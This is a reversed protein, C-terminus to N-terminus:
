GRLPTLPYGVARATSPETRVSIAVDAVRRGPRDQLDSRRRPAFPLVAGTREGRRRGQVRLRGQRVASAGAGALHRLHAARGPTRPRAEEDSGFVEGGDDPDLRALPRRDLRAGRARAAQAPSRVSEPLQSLDEIPRDPLSELQDAFVALVLTREDAFWVHLTFDIKPIRFAYVKKKGAGAARTAKLGQRMQEEDYPSATRLILYFPPVVADDVTAAFVLHDLDELRLGVWGPLSELRFESTGFKVPDRLFRTGIPNDLLEAIRAGVLFNTGAPLYGLAALKDPAVTAIPALDPEPVGLQRGPRRPPRSTDYARRQDQTMLMFTLGVGAMFLMVAVVAGGVLWISRRSRLEAQAVPISSGAAPADATIGTEAPMQPRPSETITDLPRLQFSDGCRPCVIRQGATTGPRVRISANCYPCTLSETIM